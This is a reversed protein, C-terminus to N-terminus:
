RVSVLERPTTVPWGETTVLWGEAAVEWSAAAEIGAPKVAGTTVGAVPLKVLETLLLVGRVDVLEPVVAVPVEPDEVEVPELSELEDLVPEEVEVELPPAAKAVAPM